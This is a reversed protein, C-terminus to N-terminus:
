AAATGYVYVPYAYVPRRPVTRVGSACPLKSAVAPTRRPGGCQVHAEPTGYTQMGHCWLDNDGRGEAAAAEEATGRAELRAAAVVVLVAGLPARQGLCLPVLLLDM